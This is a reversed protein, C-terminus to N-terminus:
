RCAKSIAARFRAIAPEVHAIWERAEHSEDPIDFDDLRDLLFAGDTLVAAAEHCLAHVIENAYPASERSVARLRDVLPNTMREFTLSRPQRPEPQTGLPPMHAAEVAAYAIKRWGERISETTTEWTHKLPFHDHDGRYVSQAQTFAAKAADELANEIEVESPRDLGWHAVFGPPTKPHKASM